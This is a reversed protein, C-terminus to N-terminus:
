CFILPEDGVTLTLQGAGFKQDAAVPQNTIWKNATALNVVEVSYTGNPAGSGVSADAERPRSANRSRPQRTHWVIRPM